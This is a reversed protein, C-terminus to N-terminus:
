LIKIKLYDKGPNLQNKSRNDAGAHFHCSACSQIGDTGLQMDWFLSKGLAIAAAKDQVFDKLNDPEPISVTKLSALPQFPGPNIIQASVTHGALITAMVLASIASFRKISKSWNSVLQGLRSLIMVLKASIISTRQFLRSILTKSSAIPRADKDSSVSGTDKFRESKPLGSYSSNKEKSM